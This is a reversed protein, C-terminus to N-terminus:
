KKGGYVRGAFCFRGESIISVYCNFLKGGDFREVIGFGRLHTNPRAKGYRPSLTTLCPLVISVWRDKQKVESCKTAASYTHCHGSLTSACYTDVLKKAINVSSGVQDGHLLILPGLNFTGGQPVYLWGRRDLDLLKPWSLAGEFQPSKELFGTLWDDHNGSLFVKTAKPLLKDIPDMIDRIFLDIDAQFGGAKRLGPLGETHHSINQNDFSDGLLVVGAIKSRNHEIFEMVAAVSPLDHEPCHLDALVVWLQPPSNKAFPAAKLSSPYKEDAKQRFNSELRDFVTKPM